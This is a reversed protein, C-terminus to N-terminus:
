GPHLRRQQVLVLDRVQHVVPVRLLVPRRQPPLMEADQVPSQARHQLKADIDLLDRAPSLQRRELERSRMEGFEVLARQAGRLRRLQHLSFILLELSHYFIQQVANQRRAVVSEVGHDLQALIQSKAERQHTKDGLRARDQQLHARRRDRLWIGLRLGHLLFFNPFQDGRCLNDVCAELLRPVFVPLLAFLRALRDVIYKADLCRGAQRRGMEAACLQRQPDGRQLVPVAAAMSIVMGNANLANYLLEFYQKQFFAEAPGDPDSSDTIIVDYKDAEDRAATNKLYEFGDALVVQVKEHSLSKAMNPLYKKSLNIVSEDIEVLTAREVCDHKLVERLVGGDGGGIVLVKKPNPHAFLPVHTIMEQYAFEDRETVQIIGDLVLVNGFDTSRFVLVDQFKSKEAHLIEAVRLRMAQGPFAEENEERFWGDKILPHTLPM